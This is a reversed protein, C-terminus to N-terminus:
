IPSLGGKVLGKDGSGSCICFTNIQENADEQSKNM